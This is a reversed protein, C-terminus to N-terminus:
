LTNLKFTRGRLRFTFTNSTLKGKQRTMGVGLAFPKLAPDVVMPQKKLEAMSKRLPGRAFEDDLFTEHTMYSMIADPRTGAVGVFVSRDGLACVMTVPQWHMKLGYKSCVIGGYVSKWTDFYFSWLIGNAASPKFLAKASDPYMSLAVPDYTSVDIQLGVLESPPMAMLEAFTTPPTFSSTPGSGAGGAARAAFNKAGAGGRRKGVSRAATKAAAKSLLLDAPSPAAVAPDELIIGREDVLCVHPIEGRSLVADAAGLPILSASFGHDALIKAGEELQCESAETTAQRYTAPNMREAVMKAFAKADNAHEMLDRTNKNFQSMPPCDVSVGAKTLVPVMYQLLIIIKDHETPAANYERLATQFWRASRILKDGYPVTELLDVAVDISAVMEDGCLESFTRSFIPLWHKIGKFYDERSLTKRAVAAPLTANLTERTPVTTKAAVRTALHHFPHGTTAHVGAHPTGLWDEEVLKVHNYCLKAGERIVAAAADYDVQDTGDLPTASPDAGVSLCYCWLFDHCARCIKGETDWNMDKELKGMPARLHRGAFRMFTLALQNEDGDGAKTEEVPDDTPPLKATKTSIVIPKFPAKNWLKLRAKLYTVSRPDCASEGTEPCTFTEAEDAVVGASSAADGAHPCAWAATDNISM